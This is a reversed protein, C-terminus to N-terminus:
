AGIRLGPAPRSRARMVNMERGGCWRVRLSDGSMLFDREDAPTWGCFASSDMPVLLGLSPVSDRGLKPCGGRDPLMAPVFMTDGRVFGYMCGRWTGVPGLRYMIGAVEAGMAITIKQGGYTLLFALAVVSLARM